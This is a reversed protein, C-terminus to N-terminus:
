VAAEAKYKVDKSLDVSYYFEKTTEHGRTEVRAPAVKTTYKISIDQALYTSGASFTFKSYVLSLRFVLGLRYRTRVGSRTAHLHVAYLTQRGYM